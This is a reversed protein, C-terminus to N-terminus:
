QNDGATAAPTAPASMAVWVPENWAHDAAITLTSRIAFAVFSFSCQGIIAASPGPHAAAYRHFVEAFKGATFANIHADPDAVDPYAAAAFAARHQENTLQCDAVPLRSPDKACHEFVAKITTEDAGAAIDVRETTGARAALANLITRKGAGPGGHITTITGARMDPIDPYDAGAPARDPNQIADLIADPDVDLPPTTDGREALALNLAATASAVAPDGHHPYAKTM